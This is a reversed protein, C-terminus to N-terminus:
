PIYVKKVADSTRLIYFGRGLGEVSNGVLQGTINYVYKVSDPIFVTSDAPINILGDDLSGVEIEEGGGMFDFVIVGDNEVINTIPYKTYPTYETAGKPFADGPKGEATSSSYSSRGDAEILDVRMGSKTNPSNNLWTAYDYSIKTILMGHGPLGQDWATQQRNELIFYETPNPDNGKLNHKGTSSILCSGRKTVEHLTVTVPSNLITPTLWGLFFRESASYAPPIVGNNAYPGYDMLDWYGWTKINADYYINYLDPLGLVHSFEHCFTNIGDRRKTDYSLESSCAYMNILKKDLMYRQGYGEYLWYAHPWITNQDPSDAEGYGAYIFYVFDVEADNDADYQTFDVDWNKDALDCAQKVLKDVYKDLGSGDNAGYYEMKQPLDVPGVVDFHPTYQGYSQEMFYQRASGYAGNATYNEGNLQQEYVERTNEEAFKVDSFNVLIVLGRPALNLPYARQVQETVRRKSSQMRKQQVQASNQAPIEKYFGDAQKEVWTGNALTTYHGFEDGHKYITLTSGDPQVVEIGKPYAPKAEASTPVFLYAGLALAIIFIKKM